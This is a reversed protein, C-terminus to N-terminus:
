WHYSINDILRPGDTLVALCGQAAHRGEWTSLSELSLPDVIDFYQVNLFESQNIFRTVLEKVAAPHQHPIFERAMTLGRYLLPAAQRQQLSLLLNRSSMALGDAERLTTCGIIEVPLQLRMVMNKVIALQQFDKEGFYARDPQVIEFLRHVVTAMGKFHGPRFQGEMVEELPGFALDLLQQGHPYIEAVGPLFAYDCSVTDLLRLDEDPMRPYSELDSPNNFQTPNVFISCVVKDNEAKAQRLLSLHGEHLAGM